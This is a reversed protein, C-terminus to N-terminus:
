PTATVTPIAAHPYEGDLEGAAQAGGILFVRQGQKKVPEFLTAFCEQGACIVVTDVQLCPPKLLSNFMWLTSTFAISLRPQIM